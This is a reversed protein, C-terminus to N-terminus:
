AARRTPLTSPDSGLPSPDDGPSGRSPQHRRRRSVRATRQRSAARARRARVGVRANRIVERLRRWGAALAKEPSRRFVERLSGRRINGDEDVDPEGEVDYSDALREAACDRVFAPCPTNPLEEYAILLVREDEAEAATVYYDCDPEAADLYPDDPEWGHDLDVIDLEVDAEALRAFDEM